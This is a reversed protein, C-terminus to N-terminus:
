TNVSVEWVWTAFKRANDNKNNMVFFTRKAHITLNLENVKSKFRQQITDTTTKSLRNLFDDGCLTYEDQIPLTKRGRKNHGYEIMENDTVCIFMCKYKTFNKYQTNVDSNTFSKLLGLRYIDNLLKGHKGTRDQTANKPTRFYAFEIILGQNNKVDVRM